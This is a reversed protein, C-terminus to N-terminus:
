IKLKDYIYFSFGNVIFARLLTIALGNFLKGMKYLEKFSKSHDLQKRTKLTDIPYTCMWSTMGAVGGFIFSNSFISDNKYNNNLYHYTSFYCPISIIERCITYQLGTFLLKPNIDKKKNTFYIQSHLKLHDFPTILFSGTIGTCIGAIISNNFYSNYYNYNGFMLGTGICNMIMPYKIGNYLLKPNELYIKINNNNQLCTKLTDFPYGIIIQSLGFINGYIYEM